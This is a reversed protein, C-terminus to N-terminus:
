WEMKRTYKLYGMVDIDAEWLHPACVYCTCLYQIAEIINYHTIIM